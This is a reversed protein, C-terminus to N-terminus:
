IIDMCLQQFGARRSSILTFSPAALAHATVHATVHATAHATVHALVHLRIFPRLHIFPSSSPTLPYVDLVHVCFHKGELFSLDM